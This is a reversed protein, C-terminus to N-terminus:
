VLDAFDAPLFSSDIIATREKILWREGDCVVHDIYQGSAYLKSDEAPAARAIIFNSVVCAGAGEVAPDIDLVSVVHTTKGRPTHWVGLLYAVREQLALRGKDVYNYLGQERHNERTILAHRCDDTFLDMWEVYRQEDSFRAARQILRTIAAESAADARAQPEIASRDTVEIM